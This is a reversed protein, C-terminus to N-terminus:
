QNQSNLKLEAKALKRERRRDTRMAFSTFITPILILTILTSFTLGFAVSVGLSTWMEAGEGIDFAMPVMGFVTTLTTMLIPRLRQRGAMVVAEYISHGQERLLITYDVLVIGNNVVIGILMLIGLLAMVGIATGTVGMGIFVGVLAFPISFMIVFPYTLSEFQSAMIVFVLVVILIMISLIDGFTDQQDEYTGGLSWYFGAPMDITEVAKVAGAVIDSMAYGNGVSCSVTVLRVRDKREIKPPTQREVVTGLDRIKIGQGASNYIIINEIDEVSSRFEKAYRVRITYEEGDERFYSATQGNIRNRLYTSATSVNLGNLALKERDFDVQYEPTYEDRSITVQTCGPVARMKKALEEAIRDSEDFDFGFIQVQVAAAGGMGMGGSENVSFTRIEPYDNLIARMQDAIETLSRSRENKKLLRTNFNIINTGNDNMQGFVNSDDAAGEVLNNIRIEPIEERFRRDIELALDRTIEQRTGVPLKIDVGIRANDSTPFFETKMNPVYLVIAAAFIALAMCVVATRHRVCWALIRSYWNAFKQFGRDFAKQFGAKKPNQRLLLSSLVPTLTIAAITSITLTITVMWGMQKLLVGVFGTMMTLPLFVAITTLTSAIVSIGVEKTAFIAAQKPREGREIHTTINELVVIANDVVMGIAISLSSMSIINLTNGTFWLYILAALLSIPITLIIIFTARWRGLFILVIAMVVVFIVMITSKLSDITSKITDSSDIVTTIKIDNPLTPEIEALKKQIGEIVDVTNADSQKQIVIRGGQAGDTYTDQAREQVTDKVQAVDRVYVPTGNFTGVVLDLIENADKFEKQVRLSYSNSGIDITGAPTSRNEAGIVQSIQEITIGYAELKYPDTYVQIEREPAGSVSVQGVGNVRALPVSVYEDLIKYLGNYSEDATVSLIMIPMDETSFKFITPDSAGDPLAMGVMDLKDRVNNTAEESDTGYEFELSILSINERSTSYIHKLNSVSNLSNELIKTVNTEIDVASAGDYSTMVMIATSDLKPFQDISLNTLSFAGFLAIAIFVLITTVPKNVASKYINM